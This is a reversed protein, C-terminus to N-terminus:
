RKVPNTLGIWKTSRQIADKCVICATANAAPAKGLWRPPGTNGKHTTTTKDLAASPQKPILLLHMASFLKSLYRTQCVNHCMTPGMLM